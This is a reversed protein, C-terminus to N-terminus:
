GGLAQEETQVLRKPGNLDKLLPEEALVVAYFLVAHVCVCISLPAQHILARQVM